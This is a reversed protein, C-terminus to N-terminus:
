LDDTWRRENLWTAAHTIKDMERSQWETKKWRDLGDAIANATSEPDSARTIAKVFAELAKEKCVKRPYAPWFHEHFFATADRRVPALDHKYAGNVSAKVAKSAEKLSSDLVGGVGDGDPSSLSETATATATAAQPFNTALSAVINTALSTLRKDRKVNAGRKGRESLRQHVREQHRFEEVMRTSTWAAPTAKFAAAIESEVSRWEDITMDALSAMRRESYPLVGPDKQRWAHCLLSFYAGRAAHSMAIFAPDNLVADPEFMFASWRERRVPGEKASISFAEIPVGAHGGSALAIVRQHHPWLGSRLKVTCAPQM